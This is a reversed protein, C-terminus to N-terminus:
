RSSFFSVLLNLTLVLCSTDATKLNGASRKLSMAVVETPTWAPLKVSLFMEKLYPPWISNLM